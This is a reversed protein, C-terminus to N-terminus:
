KLLSLIHSKLPQGSYNPPEGKSEVDLTLTANLSGDGVSTTTKGSHSVKVETHFPRRPAVPFDWFTVSFTGDSKYTAGFDSTSTDYTRGEFVAQRFKFYFERNEEPRYRVSISYNEIKEHISPIKDLEAGFAELKAKIFPNIKQFAEAKFDRHWEDILGIARRRGPAEM